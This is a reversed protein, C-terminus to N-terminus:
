PPGTEDRARHEEDRAQAIEDDYTAEHASIAVTGFIGILVLPAGVWTPLGIACLAGGLLAIPVLRLRRM